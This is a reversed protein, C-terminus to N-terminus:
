SFTSLSQPKFWEGVDVSSPWAGAPLLYTRGPRGQGTKGPCTLLTIDNESSCLSAMGNGLSRNLWLVM